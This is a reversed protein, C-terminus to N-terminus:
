YYLGLPSIEYVSGSFVKNFNGLRKIESDLKPYDVIFEIVSGDRLSQCDDHGADKIDGIIAIFTMDELTVEVIDGVSGFQSTVAIMPMDDIVRLGYESDTTALQQLEYQKSNKATIARYPMFSKFTGKCIPELPENLAELPEIDTQYHYVDSQLLDITDRQIKIAILSIVLLFLLCGIMLRKLNNYYNM